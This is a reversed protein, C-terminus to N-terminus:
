LGNVWDRSVARLLLPITIASVGFLTKYVGAKLFRGLIGEYGRDDLGVGVCHDGAYDNRAKLIRHKRSLNERSRKDFM